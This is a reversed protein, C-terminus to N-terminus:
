DTPDIAFETADTKDPDLGSAEVNVWIGVSRGNLKDKFVQRMTLIAIRRCM